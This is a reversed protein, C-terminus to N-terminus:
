PEDLAVIALMRDGVREAYAYEDALSPPVMTADILRVYGREALLAETVPEPEAEMAEIVATVHHGVIAALEPSQAPIEQIIRALNDFGIVGGSELIAASDEVLATVGLDACEARVAARMADGQEATLFPYAGDARPRRSFLGM